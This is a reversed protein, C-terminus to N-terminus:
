PNPDGSDRPSPAKIKATVETSPTRDIVVLDTTPVVKRVRHLRVPVGGVSLVISTLPVHVDGPQDFHVHTSIWAALRLALGYWKTTQYQKPTVAVVINLAVYFAFFGTLLVAEHARFFQLISAVNVRRFTDCRADFRQM